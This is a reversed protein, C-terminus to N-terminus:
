LNMMGSVFKLLVHSGVHAFQGSELGARRPNLTFREKHDISDLTCFQDASRLVLGRVVTLNSGQLQNGNRTGSDVHLQHFYRNRALLAM